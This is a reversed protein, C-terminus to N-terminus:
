FSPSTGTKKRKNPKTDTVYIDEARITYKGPM